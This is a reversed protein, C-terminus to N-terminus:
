VLNEKLLRKLLMQKLFLYLNDNDSIFSSSIKEDNKAIYNKSLGSEKATYEIISKDYFNIGLKKALLSGVYHGGSGYERGITIVIKPGNYNHNNLENNDSDIVKTHGLKRYESFFM